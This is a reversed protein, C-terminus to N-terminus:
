IIRTKARVSGYPGAYKKIVALNTPETEPIVRDKYKIYEHGEIQERMVNNAADTRFDIMDILVYKLDDPLGDQFAWDADVAIQVNPYDFFHYYPFPHVHQIYKGIGDKGKALRYENEALTRVTISSSDEDGAKLYVLKVAYVNVFPDVAFFKDHPVYDYIRYAGIVEDAPLLNSIDVNPYSWGWYDSTVKGTENYINTNTKSPDLTFGLMMELSRISRKIQGTVYTVQNAPIQKGTIDKYQKLNM